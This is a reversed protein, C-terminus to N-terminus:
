GFLEGDAGVDRLVMPADDPDLAMSFGLLGTTHLNNMDVVREAKGGTVRIRFVAQDRGSRMFYIFRSDKSFAQFKADGNTELALWKQTTMDFVRLM